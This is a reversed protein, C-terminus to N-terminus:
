RARGARSSRWIAHWFYPEGTLDDTTIPGRRLIAQGTLSTALPLREGHRVASNSAHLTLHDPELVWISGVPVNLLECAMAVLRNFVQQPPQTLM